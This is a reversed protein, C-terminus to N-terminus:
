APGGSTALMELFLSNLDPARIRIEKVALGAAILRSNIAETDLRSPQVRGFWTLPSQTPKLGSAKLEITGSESAAAALVVIIERDTGFRSELLKKPAGEMVLRGDKMLGICDSLQQAQDLDHTAILIATGNDRLVHLLGHIAERADIDIGVTPEDLILALPKNLISACINVRRQYGGSLTRCLRNAHDALGAERLITTVADNIDRRPVGSLRGFIELNETVTLYPFIAIDQPVYSIARRALRNTRPDQGVVRVEGATLQLRGCMAKMLTTKGAGNPGILSYIEGARLEIDVGRLVTRPGFDHRAGRVQVRPLEASSSSVIRRAGTESRRDPSIM